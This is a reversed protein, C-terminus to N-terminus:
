VEGALHRKRLPESFKEIAYRLMTRPMQQYRTKLFTVKTPQHRNGMERLMWGVVKHILNERDNLLTEAIKLADAFDNQRSYAFTSMMAIRRGWPQKIQRM